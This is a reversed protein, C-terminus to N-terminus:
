RAPMAPVAKTEAELANKCNSPSDTKEGERKCIDLQESREGPHAVYYDVTRPQPSCACLLCLAAIVACAKM